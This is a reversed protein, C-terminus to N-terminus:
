DCSLVVGAGFVDDEFHELGKVQALSEEEFYANELDV